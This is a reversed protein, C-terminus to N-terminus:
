RTRGDNASRGRRADTAGSCRRLHELCRARTPGISGIPMDLVESAEAYSPAPVATLVRLLSKCRSPLANFARVLSKDREEELVRTTLDSAEECVSADQFAGVPIDRHGRRLIRISENRATTALWGGVRDPERIGRAHEALKLWTSQSVDAADTTSLGHSRAIAWILGAFRHVLREWADDDGDAAARVLVGV